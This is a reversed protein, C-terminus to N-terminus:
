SKSLWNASSQSAPRHLGHFVLGQMPCKRVKTDLESPGAKLFLAAPGCKTGVARAKTVVNNLGALSEPLRRKAQTPLKVATSNSLDEGDPGAVADDHQASSYLVELRQVADSSVKEVPQAPAPDGPQAQATIRTAPQRHVPPSVCQSKSPGQLKQKSHKAKAPERFTNPLKRKAGSQLAAAAQPGLKQQLPHPAQDNKYQDPGVAVAECFGNKHLSETLDDPMDNLEAYVPVLRQAGPCLLLRARVHERFSDQLRWWSYRHAVM